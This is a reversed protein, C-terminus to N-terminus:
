EGSAIPARSVTPAPSLQLETTIERLLGLTRHLLEPPLLLLQQALDDARADRLEAVLAQGIPTLQVLKLRRDAANEVRTVYGKCVLRDVMLSANALSCDLDSGLKGICVTGQRELVSLLSLLPLTLETRRVFRLLADSDYRMAEAIFTSLLGSLERHTDSQENPYNM